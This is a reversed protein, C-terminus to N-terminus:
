GCKSYGCSSCCLCGEQFVMTGGCEPCEDSAASGDSIYSALFKRLHFLFSGAFVDVEELCSVINVILVNHRLLLSLARTLKDVNNSTKEVKAFTTEVYEEPIGKARALDFLREVADETSATKEPHNTSCFIAVPQTQDGKDRYITTLYWKKPNKGYERMIRVRAPCDEPLKATELIVEEQINAKEQDVVRYSQITGEIKYTM